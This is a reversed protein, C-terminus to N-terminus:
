QQQSAREKALRKRLRARQSKSLKKQGNANNNQVNNVNQNNKMPTSGNSQAPRRVSLQGPQVNQQPMGPQQMQVQGNSTGNSMKSNQRQSNYPKPGRGRGRQATFNGRGRGRWGSGWGRGKGASIGVSVNESQGENQQQLQQKNSKAGNVKITPAKVTQIVGRDRHYGKFKSNYIAFRLLRDITNDDKLVVDLENFYDRWSQSNLIFKTKACVGNKVKIDPRGLRQNYGKLTQSTTNKMFWVQFMVLRRSIKSATFTEKLRNPVTKTTNFKSYKSLMVYILFKGLDRCVNKNTGGKTLFSHVVKNAFPAIIKNNKSKLLLLLHHLACYGLVVKECMVMSVEKNNQNDMVFQVVIQNM